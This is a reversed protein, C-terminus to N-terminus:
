MSINIELGLDIIMDENPLSSVDVDDYNITIVVKKMTEKNIMDDINVKKGDEYNVSYSLYNISDTGTVKLTNIYMNNRTPNIIDFSFKFTDGPKDFDIDYTINSGELKAYGTDKSLVELNDFYVNNMGYANSSSLLSVKDIKSYIFTIVFLIIAGLIIIRNKM